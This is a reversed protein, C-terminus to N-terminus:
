EIVEQLCVTFELMGNEYNKYDENIDPNKRVYIVYEGEQVNQFITSNNTLNQWEQSQELRYQWIEDAYQSWDEGELSSYKIQSLLLNWKNLIEGYDSITYTVTLIDNDKFSKEVNIFINKYGYVRKLEGTFKLIGNSYDLNLNKANKRLFVTYTHGHLPVSELIFEENTFTFWAGDEGIKYQWIDVLYGNWDGSYDTTSSFSIDCIYLKLKQDIVGFGNITFDVAIEYDDNQKPYRYQVSVSSYTEVTVSNNKVDPNTEWTWFAYVTGIGTLLFSLVICLIAVYKKM